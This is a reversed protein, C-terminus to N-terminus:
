KDDVHINFTCDGSIDYIPTEETSMEEDYVAGGSVSVVSGKVVAFYIIHDPILLVDMSTEGVPIELPAEVEVLFGEGDSYAGNLYNNDDILGWPSVTAGGDGTSEVNLTMKIVPIGSSAQSRTIMMNSNKNAKRIKAM